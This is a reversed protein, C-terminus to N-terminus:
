RWAGALRETRCLMECYHHPTYGLHNVAPARGLMPSCLSGRSRVGWRDVLIYAKFIVKLGKNITKFFCPTKGAKTSVLYVSLGSLYVWFIPM